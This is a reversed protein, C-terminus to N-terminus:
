YMTTTFPLDIACFLPVERPTHWFACARVVFQNILKVRLLRAHCYCMAAWRLWWWGVRTIDDANDNARSRACQEWVVVYDHTYLCMICVHAISKMEWPPRSWKAAAASQVMRCRSLLRLPRICVFVCVFSYQNTTRIFCMHSVDAYWRRWSSSMM